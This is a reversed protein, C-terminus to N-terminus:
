PRPRVRPLVTLTRPNPMEGVPVEIVTPGSRDLSARVANGLQAPTAARVGAAGFSEAFAVFDPNHLGTAIVRGGHVERQMRLVNGYAGDNFVVAIVGIRHQVATALENATFLFGGDGSISLVARRPHAVKVGLATAFGYGLTGQYGTTLFTRPAYTPWALRAAYGVQTMEDLVIGDEPLADRMARLFDMQPGIAAAARAEAEAKLASLERERSARPPNTAALGQRLAALAVRADAVIGAAPRHIRMMENADIDIRILKLADDIGWETLPRLLRTGVALVVDADAWLRHGAVARQGLYHRDSVVGWGSTISVVPAQLAEAVALLEPGADDAGSGVVVLPRAAGGLLRAADQIAKPDAELVGPVPGSGGALDVEAERAWVDLPTELAVPRPRGSKLQYFAEDVLHPVQRPDEIRAAWKTLGRLISLQDPLEHLMGWGRGILHSPIQGTICLVPANVAYATALAATTNLVGPGPVVAFAGVRGTSKAYGLAMYGAAQEHRTHIVRIADNADHLANFLADNQIGPIAFLVDVGHRQLMAVLAEGGTLRAM